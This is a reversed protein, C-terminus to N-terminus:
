AERGILRILLYSLVIIIAMFVFSLASAYGMDSWKFGAKYIFFSLTETVSGPGGHTLM